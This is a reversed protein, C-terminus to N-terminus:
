HCLLLFVFIGIDTYGVGWRDPIAPYCCSSSGGVAGSSSRARPVQRGQGYKM